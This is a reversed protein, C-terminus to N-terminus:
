DYVAYGLVRESMDIKQHELDRAKRKYEFYRDSMKDIQMRLRAAAEADINDRECAALREEFMDIEYSVVTQRARWYSLEACLREYKKMEGSSVIREM